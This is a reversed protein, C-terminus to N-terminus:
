IGALAIGENVAPLAKWSFTGVASSVEPPASSTDARLCVAYRDLVRAVLPTCGGM